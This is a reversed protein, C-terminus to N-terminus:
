SKEREHFPAPDVGDESPKDGDTRPPPTNGAKETSQIPHLAGLIPTQPPLNNVVRDVLEQSQRDLTTVSHLGLRSLDDADLPFDHRHFEHVLKRSITQAQKLTFNKHILLREVFNGCAALAEEAAGVQLGLTRIDFAELINRTLENGQVFSTNTARIHSLLREEVAGIIDQMFQRVRLLVLASYGSDMQADLPGFEGEAGLHIKDSSIAFLTGASKAQDPIITEYSQCFRQFLRALKYASDADGGPSSLLILPNAPIEHYRRRVDQLLNKSFRGYASECNGAMILFYLPRGFHAELDRIATIAKVSLAEPNPSISVSFDSAEGKHALALSSPLWSAKNDSQTDGNSRKSIDM